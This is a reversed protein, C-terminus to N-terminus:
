LVSSLFGGQDFDKKRVLPLAAQISFPNQRKKSRIHVGFIIWVSIKDTTATVNFFILNFKGLGSLLQSCDREIFIAYSINERAKVLIEESLDVGIIELDGFASVLAATSM